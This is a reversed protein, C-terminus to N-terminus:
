ERRGSGPQLERVIKAPNGVVVTWAPVDKTVVAGAGVVAGDGVTVGPLVIAARGIWVGNGLVVPANRVGAGHVVEHGDSDSISAFPGMLLDDGISVETSSEISAGSNILARDGIRLTAGENARLAARAEIGRFMIHDGIVIAGGYSTVSPLM